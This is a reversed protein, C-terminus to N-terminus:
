SLQDLTRKNLHAADYAAWKANVLPRTASKTLNKFAAMDVTLM